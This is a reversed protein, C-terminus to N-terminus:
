IFDTPFLNVLNLNSLLRANVRRTKKRYTFFLPLDRDFLDFLGRDIDEITCSPLELIADSANEGASPTAGQRQAETDERIAM